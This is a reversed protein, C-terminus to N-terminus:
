LLIITAPGLRTVEPEVRDSHLVTYYAMATAPM